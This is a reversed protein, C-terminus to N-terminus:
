LVRRVHNIARDRFRAPVKEAAPGFHPHPLTRAGPAEFGKELRWGQPKNTGVTGEARGRGAQKVTTGISRNYDGTQIRPGLGAVSPQTRPRAANRKVDRQTALTEAAVVERMVSPLRAALARFQAAVADADAM